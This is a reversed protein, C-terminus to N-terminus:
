LNRRFPNGRPDAAKVDEPTIVPEKGAELVISFQIPSTCMVCINALSIELKYPPVYTNLIKGGCLENPLAGYLTKQLATCVPCEVVLEDPITVWSKFLLIYDDPNTNM